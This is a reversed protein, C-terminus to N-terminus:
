ARRALHKWGLLRGGGLETWITYLSYIGAGGAVTLALPTRFIALGLDPLFRVTFAATVACLFMTTNERSLVFGIQKRVILGIVLCHMAYTVLFAIGMGSLGFWRMSAWASTLMVTGSLAETAFVIKSGSHTLVVYGLTWSAAKFIDGILQWELISVAPRFSATYLAPILHPALAQVGLLMPIAILMVLRFQQNALHVLQSPRDSAASLRPFYDQAMATTLFGMYTVSITIAARYYGAADQNLVHVVLVPLVLQTGTGLMLSANYPVGFRTLERIGAVTQAWTARSDGNDTERALFIRSVLANSAALAIVAFVIGAHHWRWVIVLALASGFVSNIVAAKALAAVRHHANLLALQVSGVLTLSVALGILAVDRGSDDRDLVAQGLRDRFVLLIAMAVAGPVLCLLWAARRLADLQHSDERAIAKAGARVLGPGVGIGAIMVSLGVLSQLLGMYGLGVPGILVAWLKSSVVGVCITVLSGASLM